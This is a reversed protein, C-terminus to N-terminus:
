RIAIKLVGDQRTRFMDYSAVIDDLKREHTLLPTLDVEGSELIGLMTQLRKTGVPCLTTVITRHLFTGDTSLSLAALPTYVGVSSVTGGFRTVALCNDFTVQKGLAEVAVDVGMGGTATMIEEVAQEPPVVRDAGMRRAMAVRGPISEVAIIMGAKYFKAAATACLGVPGQAFIAVTQGEQLRAREIAAFGTSMIDAAFIAHRDDLGEPVAAMSHDAGSMLYAEAQAGFLLNMPAAFTQCVSHEGSLCRACHGCSLLCATVVRDGPKVRKVGEGVAEVVGVSEHGMPMGAPVEEIHDVIHIDSGCITTLTTRVLAQGPGPDGLDLDTLGVKGPGEKVCARVKPMPSQYQM